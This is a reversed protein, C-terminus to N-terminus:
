LLTDSGSIVKKETYKQKQSERTYVGLPFNSIQTIEYDDCHCWIGTNVGLVGSFYHGFDLSTGGHM